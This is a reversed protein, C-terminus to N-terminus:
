FMWELGVGVQQETTHANNRIQMETGVRLHSTVAYGTSISTLGAGDERGPNVWTQSLAIDSAGNRSLALVMRVGASFGSGHDAETELSRYGVVPAVNFRSGLPRLYYRVEGGYSAHTDDELSTRYEGSISLSTDEIFIDEVGIWGEPTGDDSLPQSYGARVRTRITSDHRIDADLDPIEELWRQLVPSNEIVRPRIDLDRAAENRRRVQAHQQPQPSPDLAPPPIELALVAVMSLIV